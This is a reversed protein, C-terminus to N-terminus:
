PPEVGSAPELRWEVEPSTTRNEGPCPRHSVPMACASSAPRTVAGRQLRPSSREFRLCHVTVHPLQHVRCATFTDGSPITVRVDGWAAHHSQHRLEITSRTLRTRDEYAASTGLPGHRAVPKWTRLVANSESARHRPSTCFSRAQRALLRERLTVPRRWKARPPAGRGRRRLLEVLDRHPSSPTLARGLRFPSHLRWSCNRAHPTGPQVSRKWRLPSPDDGLERV